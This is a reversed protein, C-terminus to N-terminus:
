KGSINMRKLIVSTWELGKDKQPENIVFLACLYGSIWAFPWLMENYRGQQYFTYILFGFIGILTIHMLWLRAKM